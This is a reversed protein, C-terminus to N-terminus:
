YELQVRIRYFGGTGPANYVDTWEPIIDIELTQFGEDLSPTWEVSYIRDAIANWSLVARGESDYSIDTILFLDDADDLDTGAILEDANAIQDGDADEDPDVVTCSGITQDLEDRVLLHFRNDELWLMVAPQDYATRTREKSRQQWIDQNNLAYINAYALGTFENTISSETQVDLPEAEVAAGLDTMELRTENYLLIEPRYRSYALIESSTQRWWTNNSLRFFNGNQFGHFWGDIELATVDTLQEVEVTAPPLAGEVRMQWTGTSQINTINVLPNYLTQEVTTPTTQQWYEGNQLAFVRQGKWGRFLGDIRSIIAPNAPAGDAEVRCTGVELNSSDVFRIWTTGDEIWRWATIDTDSITLSDSSSTQKWTTGDDLTYIKYRGMSFSTYLGTVNSETVALQEVTIPDDEGEIFMGFSDDDQWLLVDLLTQNRVSSEDSTQRWWTSNQLKVIGGEEYGSFTGSIRTSVTNQLQRVEASGTVGPITMLYTSSRKEIYVDPQYLGYNGYTESSTQQWFQGNSLEYIQDRGKWRYFWGDLTSHDSVTLTINRTTTGNKGTAIFVVPYTGDAPESWTFQGVANGIGTGDTFAAGVPLNTATLTIIDATDVSNSARVSFNFSDGSFVFLSNPLTIEPLPGHQSPTMSDVTAGPQITWESSTWTANPEFVDNKRMARSDAYDWETDEGDVDIEGYIDILIGETHHDGYFLAYTDNGNGEATISEQDPSFGYVDEFDAASSALVWTSAAPLIGELHTCIWGDGNIQRGLYWNETELNITESGTNYLEVFRYADGGSESPDAVESIIISPPEIVTIEVTEHDSGDNDTATFTPSFTGVPAAIDWSFVGNTFVAGPPLNTASLTIEDNDATDEATVSFTIARGEVGGRNGIPLLLPPANYAYGPNMRGTDVDQQIIWESAVWTTSPGSAQANRSARSDEYDWATDTGDVDMEGYIDVLTGSSHDGGFFLAYADDGNGSIDSDVQDPTFGYAWWFDFENYAIVYTDGAPIIGSLQVDSWSSGNVQKCLFWSQGDLDIPTSSANYLEVFRFDGDNAPDAVETIMLEPQETVTITITRSSSGDKDTAIFSVDYEGIPVANNWTFVDNTFTSGSPLNSATITFPDNDAPDSATVTFILTSGEIIGKNGIPNIMPPVNYAEGPNMNDSTAGLTIDWESAIWTASPGTASANRGARSDTYEWAEGTGDTDIAGYIDVLTGSTHDGGTYLFYADDGTGSIDSDAQDPAFGYAEQFKTASYAVVLTEGAPLTGTLLTDTWTGGGNVQKSLFWQGVDLIIPANGANYLEVFRYDGGGTGAPDAVETIMLRPPESVTITIEEFDNTIGDAAYFTTTYVGVPAADIWSFSNSVSGATSTTNFVAGPPLNSASLTIVDNNVDGASVTFSLSNSVLVSRNGIPTLTPPNNPVPAVTIVVDEFDNTAGDAVTFRSTTVGVPGASAWSFQPPISNTNFVAGAPLNSVTYTLPDNNADSASVSFTLTQGNTVTQAGIPALVPAVNVIPANSVTITITEFDNTTGDDVYFTTTYTGTPAAVAWNFSNSVSGANTVTNFVAGPPLNSVSLIIPDNDIDTASVTFNLANSITVSQNGIAALVPASNAPSGPTGSVTANDFISKDGANPNNVRAVIQITSGSLGTQTATASTWDGVSVPNVAFATEAGGNLKYFLHVYKATNASGGTESTDVSLSVDTYGSISISESTWVAEGDIDVAEMRGGSTDVAMFYDASDSLTCNSVDISWKTISGPYGGSNGAGTIGADIYSSFDESWITEASAASCLTITLASLVWGSNRAGRRLLPNKYFPSESHIGEVPPTASPRPPNEETGEVPPTRSVRPPNSPTRDSPKGFRPFRNRRWEKLKAAVSRKGKVENTAARNEVPRGRSEATPNGFLVKSKTEPGIM